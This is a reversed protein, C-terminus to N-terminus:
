GLKGREIYLRAILMQEANVPRRGSDSMGNRWGHWYALSRNDGPEPDGRRGDFYGELLDEEDFADITALSTVSRETM